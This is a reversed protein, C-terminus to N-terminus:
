KDIQVTDYEGSESDSDNESESSSESDGMPDDAQQYLFEITGLGIDFWAAKLMEGDSPSAKNVGRMIRPLGGNEFDPAFEVEELPPHPETNSLGGFRDFFSGGGSEAESEPEVTEGSLEAELEDLTEGEGGEPETDSTFTPVNQEGETEDSM